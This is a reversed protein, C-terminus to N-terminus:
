LPVWLHIKPCTIFKLQKVHIKVEIKVFCFCKEWKCGGVGGWIKNMASITLNPINTYPPSAGGFEEYFELTLRFTFVVSSPIPIHERAQLVKPLYSPRALAELYPSPLIVLM